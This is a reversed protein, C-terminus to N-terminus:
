ASVGNVVAILNRNMEPIAMPALVPDSRSLSSVGSMAASSVGVAQREASMLSFANQDAYISPARGGTTSSCNSAGYLDDYNEYVESPRLSNKFICYVENYASAVRSLEARLETPLNAISSFTRFVNVGVKALDSAIGITSNAISSAGGRISGAVDRAVGFVNTSMKLFQRVTGAIPALGSNVFGVASSVLGQVRGAFSQLTSIAGGLSALGAVIGGNFPLSVLPDDISTSIAQLTINYQFFLPRSKSRRLIFQTPAVNWSFDDLVDVFLLKVQRPDTGRDIADQKAEHYDHQVLGNLDAFAEVGDPRGGSGWGTHGAITVSPLGEGFDDAWGNLVRGLTQHVSVRSPENRTLDEPRIPLTLPNGISGANDLVFSIPRVGARQDTPSAM